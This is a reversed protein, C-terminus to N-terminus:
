ELSSLASREMQTSIPTVGGGGWPCHAPIQRMNTYLGMRTFKGFLSLELLTSGKSRSAPIALARGGEWRGGGQGGGGRCKRMLISSPILGGHVYVSVCGVYFPSISNLCVLTRVKM